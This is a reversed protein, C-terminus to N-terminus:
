SKSLTNSIVPPSAEGWIVYTYFFCVCVQSALTHIKKWIALLPLNRWLKMIILVYLQKMTHSVFSQPLLFLNNNSDLRRSTIEQNFLDLMNRLRVMLGLGLCIRIGSIYFLVFVSFGWVEVALRCFLNFWLWIRKDTVCVCEWVQPNSDIPNKACLFM